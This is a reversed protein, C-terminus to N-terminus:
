KLYTNGDYQEIKGDKMLKGLARKFAAKSIQFTSRIDEPDSKDSFPIIGGKEELHSLIAEADESISDQKLPRLSINLTGDDKVEIVRGNVWEGLRPERKRETHHIFGRYGENTIVATGEKSTRYVRGSIPTNLVNEPALEWERAFVGETAPIALLRGKRDKGLTVYLMDGTKPWVTEFLPLEDKSVLIEKAIGINVFAGLNPIVEVVEAWDYTDMRISPLHTTAVTQGKKDLYLFVEVPQGQELEHETENHHMLVENTNKQLVYGTEIKRLVTMTQITGIPLTNM